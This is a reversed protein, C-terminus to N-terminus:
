SKEDFMFLKRFCERSCTSMHLCRTHDELGESVVKCLDVYVEFEQKCNPCELKM